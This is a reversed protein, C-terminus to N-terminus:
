RLAAVAHEAHVRQPPQLEHRGAVLDLGLHQDLHPPAAAARPAHGDRRHVGALRALQPGHAVRRAGTKQRHVIAEEFPDSRTAIWGPAMSRRSAKGRPHVRWASFLPVIKPAVYRPTAVSGGDTDCAIPRAPVHSAHRSICSVRAAIASLRRATNGSSGCAISSRRARRVSPAYAQSTISKM